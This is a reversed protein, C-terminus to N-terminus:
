CALETFGVTLSLFGVWSQLGGTGLKREERTLAVEEEGGESDM